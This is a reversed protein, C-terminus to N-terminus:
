VIYSLLLISAFQIQNLAELFIEVINLKYCFCLPDGSHSSRSHEENAFCALQLRGRLAPHSRGLRTGGEEACMLEEVVGGSSMMSQWSCALNFVHMVRETDRNTWKDGRQEHSRCCCHSLEDGFTTSPVYLLGGGVSNGRMRRVFLLPFFLIPIFVSNQM